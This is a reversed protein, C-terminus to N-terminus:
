LHRQSHPPFRALVLTYSPMFCPEHLVNMVATYKLENHSIVLLDARIYLNDAYPTQLVKFTRFVDATTNCSVKLAFGLGTYKYIFYFISANYSLKIM